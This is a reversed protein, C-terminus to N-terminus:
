EAHGAPKSGFGIKETQYRKALATLFADRLPECAALNRAPLSVRLTIGGNLSDVSLTPEGEGAFDEEAKIVARAVVGASKKAKELPADPHLTVIADVFTAGGGRSITTVTADLLKRNPIHIVNGQPTVLRASTWGLSDVRGTEGTELRIVDGPQVPRDLTLCFGAFFNGFSDRMALAVTLSIAAVIIVAGLVGLGAVELALLGAIFFVTVRVITSIGRHALLSDEPGHEAYIRLAYLSCAVAWTILALQLIAIFFRALSPTIPWLGVLLAAGGLALLAALPWGLGRGILEEILRSEYGHPRDYRDVLRRRFEYALAGYAAVVAVPVFWAFFTQVPSM